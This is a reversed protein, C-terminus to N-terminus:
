VVRGLFWEKARPKGRAKRRSQYPRKRMKMKVFKKVIDADQEEGRKVSRLAWSLLELHESTGERHRFVTGFIARRVMDLADVMRLRLHAADYHPSPPDFYSRIFQITTLISQSDRDALSCGAELLAQVTSLDTEGFRARKLANLIAYKLPLEKAPKDFSYGNEILSVIRDSQARSQHDTPGDRHLRVASCAHHVRERQNPDAGLRLVTEALLLRQRQSRTIAKERIAIRENWDIEDILAYWQDQQERYMTCLQRLPNFKLISAGGWALSTITLVEYYHFTAGNELLLKGVTRIHGGTAAYIFASLSGVEISRGPFRAPSRGGRKGLVHGCALQGCQAIRNLGSLSKWATEGDMTPAACDCLGSCQADINAGNDLLMRLAENNRRMAAVRISVWYWYQRDNAEPGEASVSTAYRAPPDFWAHSLNWDLDDDTIQLSLKAKKRRTGCQRDLLYNLLDNRGVYSAGSSSKKAYNKRRPFNDIFILTENPLSIPGTRPTLPAATGSSSTRWTMFRLTRNSPAIARNKVGRGKDM